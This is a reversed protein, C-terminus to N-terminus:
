DIFITSSVGALAAGIGARFALAEGASGLSAFALTSLEDLYMYAASSPVGIVHSSWSGFPVNAPEAGSRRVSESGSFSTM